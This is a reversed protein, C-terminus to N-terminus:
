DRGAIMFWSPGKIPDNWVSQWVFGAKEYARVAQENTIAPYISVAVALTTLFVDDKLMRLAQSGVGKGRVEPDAVFLDLDWTGAPLDEPLQEGWMTADMAHAYGVPRGDAEIIRAKALDSQLVALVAGESNTAPGWWTEIDSRHLWGRIMAWDDM